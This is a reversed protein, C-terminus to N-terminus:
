QVSFFRYTLLVPFNHAPENVFRDALANLAVPLELLQGAGLAAVATVLEFLPRWLLVLHQSLKDNLILSVLPSTAPGLDSRVELAATGVLAPLSPLVLDVWPNPRLSGPSRFLVEQKDLEVFLESRAPLEDLLVELTTRVLLNDVVILLAELHVILVGEFQLMLLLQAGLFWLMLVAM